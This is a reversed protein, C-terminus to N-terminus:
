ENVNDIDTLLLRNGIQTFIFRIPYDGVDCWAEYHMKNEWKKPHLESTLFCHKTPEPFITRYQQIFSKASKINGKFENCHLPFKVMSTLTPLDDAKLATQFKGWQLAVAPPVKPAGAAAQTLCIISAILIKM